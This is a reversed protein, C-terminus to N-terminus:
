LAGPFAAIQDGVSTKRPGDAAMDGLSSRDQNLVIVQIRQRRQQAGPIWGRGDQMERVDGEGLGFYEPQQWGGPSGCDQIPHQASVDDTQLSRLVRLGKQLTAGFMGASDHIM